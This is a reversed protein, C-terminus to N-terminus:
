KMAEVAGVIEAIEQTIKGQRARNYRSNISKVLDNAADTANKMAIRRAAHEGASTQLLTSFFVTRVAQPVLAALLAAPDAPHYLYDPHAAEAESEAKDSEVAGAPLLILAKPYQRSRSAFHSHVVEVQDFSGDLFRAVLPAVVEEAREYDPTEVLDDYARDVGQGFFRLISAAKRALAIMMVQRGLARHRGATEVAQRVLNGNFAGCLGRDSTAVLIAVKRIEQRREMLPHVIGSEGSAAALHRLLDQLGAAYPEAAAAADQAKKLKASAVLEMTRTIKGTNQVSKKRNLLERANAM